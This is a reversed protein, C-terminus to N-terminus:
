TFNDEAFSSARTLRRCWSRLTPKSPQSPNTKSRGCSGHQPSSTHQQEEFPHLDSLIRHHRCSLSTYTLVWCAGCTFLQWAYSSFTCTCAEDDHQTYPLVNYIFITYNICLPMYQTFIHQTTFYYWIVHPM